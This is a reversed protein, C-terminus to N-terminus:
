HERARRLRQLTKEIRRELRSADSLAQRAEDASPTHMFIWSCEILTRAAKSADGVGRETYDFVSKPLDEEFCTDDFQKYEPVKRRAAADQVRRIHFLVSDQRCAQCVIAHRPRLFGREDTDLPSTTISLGLETVWRRDEARLCASCTRGIHEGCAPILGISTHIFGRQDLFTPPNEPRNLRCPLCIRTAISRAHQFPTHSRSSSFSQPLNSQAPGILSAHTRWVPHVDVSRDARQRSIFVPSEGASSWSSCVLRLCMM